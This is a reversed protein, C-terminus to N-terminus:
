RVEATIQLIYIVESLGIQGDNDVDAGSSAYGEGISPNMKAIVQLALVADDLAM